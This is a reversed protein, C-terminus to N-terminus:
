GVGAGRFSDLGPLDEPLLDAGAPDNAAFFARAGAWAQALSGSSQVRSALHHGFAYNRAFYHTFEKLRGLQREPAFREVLAVAFERYVRPLCVQPAPLDVDYLGRAIEAFVWPAVAARRGIMLGDAGSTQLCARASALSDIGGNAVVPITVWEKVRAIWEWRPRRAFSERRLRAHVTLLDIGEDALMTCFDRLRAADLTEGLRIKATLPLATHRRASRVMRRVREPEDMLSSGGGARRVLPAPCGLNLDVADAGLRQLAAFARPIQQEGTLLLQYSLPTERPTRVLYPSTAASEAPLRTAALMETSLLGIGGFGLITTRLASHTLGAMPALLLPPWITKHGIRM